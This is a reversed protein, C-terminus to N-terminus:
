HCVFTLNAGPLHVTKDLRSFLPLGLKNIITSVTFYQRHKLVNADAFGAKQALTQLSKKNYLVVHEPAKYLPWDKGLIKHWAGDAYPTSLLLIGGPKLRNKLDALFAVPDYVHEIVQMLSICDFKGDAPPKECVIAEPCRQQVYTEIGSLMETGILQNFHKQAAALMFGYACGIDLFDGGLPYALSAEDLLNEYTKTLAKEQALYDNYGAGGGYYYNPDSYIKFIKEEPLRASLYYATCAACKLYEYNELLIKGASKKSDCVPCASVTQLSM